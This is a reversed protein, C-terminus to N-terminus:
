LALELKRRKDLMNCYFCKARVSILKNIINDWVATTKIPLSTAHLTQVFCQLTDVTCHLTEEVDM